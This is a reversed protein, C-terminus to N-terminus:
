VPEGNAQRSGERAQLLDSVRAVLAEPTFPKALFATGAEIVGRHLLTQDTYGSVYLIRMGPRARSLRTALQPGSMEPMVVDTILLDINDQSKEAIRMAETGNSAALVRHGAEVLVDEALMRVPAQDEVLLITATQVIAPPRALAPAAEVGSAAVEPLFVRFTTGHGVESYVDIWGGHQQVVGYVISLGLGTGKGAEKTTFFPEFMHAQTRSDMGVGNDSVVLLAYRGAPRVGHRGLDERERVAIQTEVTLRGGGPMADRANVALNLLVQTLQGADAKVMCPSSELVMALDLEEGLLRPLLGKMERIVQNLDLVRPLTAQKRSFALLQGTLLAGQEAARQIEMAKARTPDKADLRDCVLGTYGLIVTLLNNFDHAICGALRGVAEMKQSHRLQEELRKHGAIMRGIRELMGEPATSDQRKEASEEDGLRVGLENDAQAMLQAIQEYLRALAENASRLQRNAEALEQARIYVESEMKEAQIRLAETMKERERGARKLHVFETVDEVRHIVGTLEGGPGFVPSNVPSWHREEFGGGESDPRRIDYKQVAMADSRRERVVRDLSARLNRVGDAAPDGPNDPFVEFIGRGLIEERRTM